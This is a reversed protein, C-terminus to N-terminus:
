GRSDRPRRDHVFCSWIRKGRIGKVKGLNMCLNKVLQGNDDEDRVSQYIEKIHKSFLKFDHIVMNGLLANIIVNRGINGRIFLSKFYVKGNELLM